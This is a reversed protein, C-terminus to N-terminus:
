AELSALFESVVRLNNEYVELVSIAADDGQNRDEVLALDKLSALIDAYVIDVAEQAEHLSIPDSERDWVGDSM